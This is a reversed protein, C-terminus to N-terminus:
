RGKMLKQKLCYLRYYFREKKYAAKFGHNILKGFIIERRKNQASPRFLNIQYKAVDEIKAPELQADRSISDVLGRARDSNVFIVSVGREFDFDSFHNKVGWFDGITFDAVRSVKAYPCTHCYPRLFANSTFMHMYKNSRQTKNGDFVMWENRPMDWSYGEDADYYGFAFKKIKAGNEREAYELYKEYLLPSPVGHCILDCTYLKDYKKGLYNYLGSVHCATGSFLVTLGNELDEKVKPLVDRMDTQVYKSGHFATAEERNEARKHIVRNNEDFAAGYVVGGVTFIQEAIAFFAGGSQSRRLRDKDKIQLAYVEPEGNFMVSKVAPCVKDCKGCQICKQMDVDPYLFGEADPVMAIAQVPCVEVCATCGCCSKSEKVNIM